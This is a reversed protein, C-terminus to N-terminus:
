KKKGKRGHTTGPAIVYWCRSQDTASKCGTRAANCTNAARLLDCKRRQSGGAPFSIYLGACSNKNLYEVDNGSLLFIVVVVPHPFSIHFISIFARATSDRVIRSKVSLPRQLQCIRCFRRIKKKRTINRPFHNFFAPALTLRLCLYRLSPRAFM